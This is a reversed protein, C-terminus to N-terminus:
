TMSVGVFVGVEVLVGVGVFVGTAVLVGVGVFVGTAVFVGIEVLVGPPGVFVGSDSAVMVATEDDSEVFVGVVTGGVSTGGVAVGSSGTVLTWPALVGPGVGAAGLAPFVGPELGPKLRSIAIAPSAETLM